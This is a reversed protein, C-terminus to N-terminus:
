AALVVVKIGIRVRDYLYIVDSNLMGFCGATAKTGILAPDDTGHIRYTTDANSQYLYIARAGMPNKPGGPMGNIYKILDPRRKLHDPTPTWVPWKVMKGIVTEGSWNGYKGVSVGFRMARGPGQVQFLFRKDPDVIIAGAPEQTHLDVEHRQFKYPLENKDSESVPFPEAALAVRGFPLIAAALLSRRSLPM